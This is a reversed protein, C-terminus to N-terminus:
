FVFLLSANKGVSKSVSKQRISIKPQLKSFEPFSFFDRSVYLCVTKDGDVKSKKERVHKKGGYKGVERGGEGTRCSTGTSASLTCYM